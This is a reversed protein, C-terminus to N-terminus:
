QGPWQTGEMEAISRSGSKINQAVAAEVKGEQRATVLACGWYLLLFVCGLTAGLEPIRTLYTMEMEQDRQLNYLALLILTLAPALISLLLTTLQLTGPTSFAGPPELFRAPSDPDGGTAALLHLQGRLSGFASGWQTQFALAFFIVVLTILAIVPILPNDKRESTMYVMRRKRRVLWIAMLSLLLMELGNILLINDALWWTTLNKALRTPPVYEPEASKDLIDRSRHAAEFQAQAWTAEAEHGGQRLFTLYADRRIINKQEPPMDGPLAIPAAGGPRLWQLESMEAGVYGGMAYIAQIRVLAGCQIGAHRLAIGEDVRGAKETQSAWYVTMRTVNRLEKLHPLAVSSHLGAHLAASDNGFSERALKWVAASEEGTYDDWKPKQSARRVAALADVDHGSAFLGIARMMPFYANQPDLQEGVEADHDFNTLAEPTVARSDETATYPSARGNIYKEYETDRRIAVDRLSELRLIHAYLGPQTPFAPLLLRLRKVREDEQTPRQLYDARLAFALQVAYDRRFRLRTAALAAQEDGPDSDPLNERVGMQRLTWSVSKPTSVLMKGQPALLPRTLPFLLAAILLVLTLQVLIKTKPGNYFTEM